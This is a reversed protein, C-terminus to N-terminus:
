SGRYSMRTSSKGTVSREECPNSNRIILIKCNRLTCYGQRSFCGGKLNNAVSSCVLLSAETSPHLSVKLPVCREYILNSETMSRDTELFSANYSNVIREAITRSCHNAHKINAPVFNIMKKQLSVALALKRLVYACHEDHWYRTYALRVDGSEMGDIDAPITLNTDQYWMRDRFVNYEEDPESFWCEPPIWARQMPEYHCGKSRAEDPTSGCDTYTYDDRAIREKIQCAIAVVGVAALISVAVYCFIRCYSYWRSSKKLPLQVVSDGDTSDGDSHELFFKRESSNAAPNENVLRKARSSWFM